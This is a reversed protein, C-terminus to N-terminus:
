DDEIEFYKVVKLEDLDFLAVTKTDFSALDLDFKHGNEYIAINPLLVNKKNKRISSNVINNEWLSQVPTHGHVVYCNEFGKGWSRYFHRRDWTYPNQKQQEFLMFDYADYDPNTGAHCLYIIKNFKNIYIDIDELRKLKSLFWKQKETTCNIFTRMTDYGGNCIWLYFDNNQTILIDEENKGILQPAIEILFEEHNGLLYIVRKDKLLSEMIKLGDKGRDIADGLFYIVDTEDCYESIQEWLDWMGHLDTIAYTKNM